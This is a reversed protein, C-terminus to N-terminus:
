RRAFQLASTLPGSSVGFRRLLWGVFKRVGIGSRIEFAEFAFYRRKLGKAILGKRLVERLKRDAIPLAPQRWDVNVREALNDATM